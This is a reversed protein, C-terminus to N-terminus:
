TEDAKNAKQMEKTITNFVPPTAIVITIVCLNLFHDHEDLLTWLCLLAANIVIVVFYLAYISLYRIFANKVKYLPIEYIPHKKFHKRVGNKAFFLVIMAWYAFLLGKMIFPFSLSLM